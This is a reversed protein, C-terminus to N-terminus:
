MHRANHIMHHVSRITLPAHVQLVIARLSLISDIDSVTRFYHTCIYVNGYLRAVPLKM